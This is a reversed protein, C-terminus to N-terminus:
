LFYEHIEHLFILFESSSYLARKDEGSSETYVFPSASKRYFPLSNSKLHYMLDLFYECQEDNM